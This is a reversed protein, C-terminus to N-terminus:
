ISQSNRIIQKGDSKYEKLLHYFALRPARFIMRPGAYRMIMQVKERMDSNYCHVPCKRCSPKEEGFPCKDLRDYAYDLIKRCSPCLADAHGSFGGCYMEVMLYLTKKERQIYKNTM